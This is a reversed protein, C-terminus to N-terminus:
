KIVKAAISEGLFRKKVLVDFLEGGGLYETIM